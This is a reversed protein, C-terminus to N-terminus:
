NIKRFPVVNNTNKPYISYPELVDTISTAILELIGGIEIFLYSLDETVSTDPTIILEARQNYYDSMTVYLYEQFNADERYLSYVFNLFFKDSEPLIMSDVQERTLSIFSWWIYNDISDSILRSLYEIARITDFHIQYNVSMLEYLMSQELYQRLQERNQSVWGELEFSLIRDIQVQTMGMMYEAQIRRFRQEAQISSPFSSINDTNM